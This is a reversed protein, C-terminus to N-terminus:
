RDKLRVIIAGMLDGKKFDHKVANPHTNHCDACGQAVAFDGMIGKFAAGDKFTLLDRQPKATMEELAEAEAPTKPFNSAYLPTLSVIAIELEKIGMQQTSMKVFQFPLMIAHDKGMWDEEPEIGAKKAQAVVGNMYVTRFARVTELIYRVAVERSMDAAQGLPTWLWVGIVLLILVPALFRERTM